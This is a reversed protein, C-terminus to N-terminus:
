QTMSSVVMVTKASPKPEVGCGPHPGSVPVVSLVQQGDRSKVEVSDQGPALVLGHAEAYFKAVESPSRVSSYLSFSIEVRHGESQGLVHGSCVLEAGPFPQFIGIWRESAADGRLAVVACGLLILV